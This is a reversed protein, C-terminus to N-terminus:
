EDRANLIHKMKDTPINAKTITDVLDTFFTYTGCGNTNRHDILESPKRHFARCSEYRQTKETNLFLHIPHFDFIKVGELNLFRHVNWDHEVNKDIWASHCDDEWFHFVRLIGCPDYAPPPIMNGRGAYYYTNSEIRLGEKYFLDSLLSGTMLAHSRVSIAEPVIDHIDRLIEYASTGHDKDLLPNFNPHIGLEINSNNRLRSLLPTGHTIFFTAKIDSEEVLDIAYELVEDCAWDMDLSIYVPLQRDTKAISSSINNNM